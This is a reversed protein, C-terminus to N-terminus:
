FEFNVFFRICSTKKATNIFKYVNDNNSAVRARGQVNKYTYVKFNIEFVTQIILMIYELMKTVKKPLGLM